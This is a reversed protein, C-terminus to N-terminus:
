QNRRRLREEKRREFRKQLDSEGHERAHTIPNVKEESTAMSVIGGTNFPAQSYALADARDPSRGLKKEVDEKSEVQLINGTLTQFNPTALEEALEDDDPLCMPDDGNPDLAEHLSWYLETRKQKFGFTASRDKITSREAGMVALVYIGRHRLTDVVGAGMPSADVSPFYDPCSLAVRDAVQINDLGNFVALREIYNGVRYLLVTSDKGTRAVDVGQVKKGERPLDKKEHWRVRAKQIWSFPILAEPRDDPFEAMVKSRWFPSQDGWSIRKDETWETTISGPIIIQKLRVNPCDFATITQKAFTPDNFAKAFATLSDTANGIAVFRDDSSLIIKDKIDWITQSVGCAEDIAFLVRRAHWGQVDSEKYDRATFGIGYWGDNIKLASQICEGGGIWGPPWQANKWLKNIEGWLQGSVQRETPATTIVKSNWRTCLFWLAVCALNFTKTSGFCGKCVFKQNDRIAELFEAMKDWVTVGLIDQCFRVPENEYALENPLPTENKPIILPM